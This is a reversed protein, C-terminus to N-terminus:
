INEETQTPAAHSLMEWGSGSGLTVFSSSMEEKSDSKSIEISCEKCTRSRLSTPSTGRSSSYLKEPSPTMRVVEYSEAAGEGVIHARGADEAFLLMEPSIQYGCSRNSPLHPRAVTYDFSNEVIQHPPFLNCHAPSSNGARAPPTKSGKHPSRPPLSRMRRGFYLSKSPWVPRPIKSAGDPTAARAAEAIVGPQGFLDGPAPSSEREEQDHDRPSSAETLERLSTLDSATKRDLYSVFTPPDEGVSTSSGTALSSSSITSGSHFSGKKSILSSIKSPGIGFKGNHQSDNFFFREAPVSAGERISLPSDSLEVYMNRPVRASNKWGSTKPSNACQQPCYRTSKNAEMVERDTESISSLYSMVGTSNTTSTAHTTHGLSVNTTGSRSTGPSDQLTYSPSDHGIHCSLPSSLNFPALGERTDSSIQICVRGAHHNMLSDDEIRHYTPSPVTSASDSDIFETGPSRVLHADTREQTGLGRGRRDELKKRGLSPIHQPKQAALLLDSCGSSSKSSLTEADADVEKRSGDIELALKEREGSARRRRRLNRVDSVFRAARSAANSRPRNLPKSIRTSESAPTPLDMVEISVQEIENAVHNNDVGVLSQELDVEKIPNFTVLRGVRDNFRGARLRYPQSFASAADPRDVYPMAKAITGFASNASTSLPTSRSRHFSGLEIQEAHESDELISPTHHIPTSHTHRLVIPELLKIESTNVPIVPHETLRALSRRGTGCLSLRQFMQFPQFQDASEDNIYSEWKHVLDAFSTPAKAEGSSCVLGHSTKNQLGHSTDIPAGVERGPSDGDLRVEVRPPVTHSGRPVPVAVNSAEIEAVGIRPEIQSLSGQGHTSRQSGELSQVKDRRGM